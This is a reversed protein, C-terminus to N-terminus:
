DNMGLLLNVEALEKEFQEVREQRKATEKHDPEDTIQKKTRPIKNKLQDRLKVLDADKMVRIEERRKVWDFIPHKGLIKGTEKYHKLEEWIQRNELYNEVVSQSLQEMEEQSVTELLKKHGETYNDYASLMDAVLEKLVGPCEKSKLFPFEERLKISRKVNDPVSSKLKEVKSAAIAKDLDAKKQSKPKVPLLKVLAKKLNYDLQEVDVMEIQELLEEPSLKNIDFTDVEDAAATTKVLPVALMNKYQAESIGAVKGLEYCLFKFNDPTNGAKNLIHKFSLNSGYKFYLQKGAEFDRCSKFWSEITQKKNDLVKM